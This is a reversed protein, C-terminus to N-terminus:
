RSSRGYISTNPTHPCFFRHCRSLGRQRLLSEHVWVVGTTMVVVRDYGHRFEFNWFLIFDFGALIRNDSLIM